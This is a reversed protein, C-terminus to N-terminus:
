EGKRSYLFGHVNIDEWSTGTVFIDPYYGPTYRDIHNEPTFFLRHEDSNNVLINAYMELDYYNKSQTNSWTAMADWSDFMSGLEDWTVTHPRLMDYMQKLAVYLNVNHGTIPNRTIAIQANLAKIMEEVENLAANFHSVAEDAYEKADQLTEADQADIYPKVGAFSIATENLRKIANLLWYIQDEIKVMSRAFQSPVDKPQGAYPWDFDDPWNLVAM